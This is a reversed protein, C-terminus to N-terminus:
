FCKNTESKESRQCIGLFFNTDMLLNNMETFVQLKHSLQPTQLTWSSIYGNKPDM